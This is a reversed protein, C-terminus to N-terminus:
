RKSRQPVAPRKVFVVTGEEFGERIETFAGDSLGIKCDVFREPAEGPEVTSDPVYVGFTGDPGPKIAENPCLIANEVHESTFTAEGRMGPLLKGKNESVIVVDVLYTTVNQVIRPEPYIREIVGDFEADPFTEVSIGCIYEPTRKIEGVDEPMREDADHGPRAWAPALDLLRGIDAEDVEAQLILTEMDLLVALITGGTLNQKGGQIVEGIQTTVVSVIGDIPSSIDTKNLQKQADALNNEATKLNAEARKVAYGARLIAIEARDVAAIAGDLQALESEYRSTRQAKEDATYNGAQGTVRDAWIKTYKLNADIQAANAKASALDPGEAQKLASRADDLAAQMSQVNLEARRVNREEDDRQLKILLDDISVREGPRKAIEIVEGSAESKIEVRRLPRVEGTANIPLTLDGRRVTATKGQLAAMSMRLTSTAAVYGVVLTTMGLIAIMANKM